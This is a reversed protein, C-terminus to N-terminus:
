ASPAREYGGLHSKPAANTGFKEDFIADIDELMLGKTEPLWCAVVLSIASFAGFVFFTGFGLSELMMPTFQAILFNGVWNSTTTLGVGRSRYKLPFIEACYVWVMPGWGYAFNSVFFFVMSAVVVGAMANTSSWSDGEKKMFLLGCLGMVSCAATMGVSSSIMLCTRGHRDALHVAPFSALFNVANNITQFLNMSLGLSRFIRPGFYMFANMGVLQQLMQLAMGVAVLRGVRGSFVESWRPEGMAKAKEHNAIIHQLEKEAAESSRIGQLVELAEDHRGKAVLWRPSRPMWVMGILLLIGPGAQLWVAVRWGNDSPVLIMDVFAAVLIGVAIMLQYLSTLSGRLQHPAIEGQYLTVVTSLLGIALGAALRGALLQALTTTTAQLVVGVLFLLSGLMISARRGWGDLFYSSVMPLSSIVAGISFVGVVFGSTGGDITSNPDKWNPLRAVDRKFSACELIPAIYGIDLGFLFAGIAAFLAVCFVWANAVPADEDGDVEDDDPLSGGGVM